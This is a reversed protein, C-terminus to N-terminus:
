VNANAGEISVGLLSLLLALGLVLGTIVVVILGASQYGNEFRHGVKLFQILIYVGYLSMAIGVLGALGPVIFSLVVVVLQFIARLGQLWVVITLIDNMEGQGGMARGAWFFLHAMVVLAGAFLASMALPMGFLGPVDIDQPILLLPISMAIAYIIAAAFLAEYLTQRSLNLGMMQEAANAPNRLTEVILDGFKM